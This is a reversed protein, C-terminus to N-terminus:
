IKWYKIQGLLLALVFLVYLWVSSIETFFFGLDIIKQSFTLRLSFGITFLCLPVLLYLTLETKRFKRLIFLLNLVLILFVLIIVGFQFYFM